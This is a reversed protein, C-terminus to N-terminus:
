KRLIKAKERMYNASSSVMQPIRESLPADPLEPEKTEVPQGEPTAIERMKQRQESDRRSQQIMLKAFDVVNGTEKFRKLTIYVEPTLTKRLVKEDQALEQFTNMVLKPQKAIMNEIFQGTGYTLATSTAVSIPDKTTAYSFGGAGIAGWEKGKRIFDVFAKTKADKAHFLNDIDIPKFYSLDAGNLQNKLRNTENKLTTNFAKIKGELTNETASAIEAKLVLQEAVDSKDFLIDGKM